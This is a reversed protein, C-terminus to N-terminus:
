TSRGTQWVGTFAAAVNRTILGVKESHQPLIIAAVEPGDLYVMLRDFTRVLRLTHWTFPDFTQPLDFSPSDTSSAVAFAGSEVVLTWRAQDRLLLVFCNEDDEQHIVLGFAAQGHEGARRLMLSTGFEYQEHLPGKLAVHEGQAASTQELAGDQIRWNALSTNSPVEDSSTGVTWGLQALTWQNHLFEDQFHDTLCIGSFAASCQETLLAFTRPLQDVIVELTRLYDIQVKLVSGSFAVVLQHWGQTVFNEPLFLMKVPEISSPGLWIALQSGSTIAIRAVTGTEGQFLVGYSGNGASHRANVELLWATGCLERQQLEARVSADDEQVVEGSSVTWQGGNQRWAPMLVPAEFLERLRPLAPVAQPAYTPAPTWLEDGHWYLRDLCPCREQMGPLWAHYAMYLDVNNPGLVLSNHGPSILHEPIGRMLLANGVEWDQWSTDQLGAPGMPTDSMAYSVAYNDRYYCGGSFTEYYRGRHRIVAPGEVTYWDVGGREPRKEQFLQWAQHPPTVRTPRGQLTFPDLLRDVINGSGIFGGPDYWYEVTMYLYWQGDEDRFVHPDIAWPLRRRTLDHGSDTFPGEPSDAVAVRIGGEFETTHVSYYLLFQGNHVIVEPAWYRCFPQGLAPLAKGVERWQVMDTSTLIPFVLSDDPPYNDHETAYAYYRGRVKLVFPDPFNRPWFPNRFTAPQGATM